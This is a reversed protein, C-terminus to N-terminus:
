SLKKLIAKATYENIDDHRPVTAEKNTKPQVYVDHKSGHRVLVAGQRNLKQLLEFKKM